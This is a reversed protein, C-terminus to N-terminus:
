KSNKKVYEDLTQATAMKGRDDAFNAKLFSSYARSVSLRTDLDGSAIALELARAYNYDAPGKGGAHRMIKPDIMLQALRVYVEAGIKCQEKNLGCEKVKASWAKMDKQLDECRKALDKDCDKPFLTGNFRHQLREVVEAARDLNYNSPDLVNDKKEAVKAAVTQVDLADPQIRAGKGPKGPRPEIDLWSLPEKGPVSKDTRARIRLSDKEKAHDSGSELM